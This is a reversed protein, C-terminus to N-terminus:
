MYIRLVKSHTTHTGHIPDIIVQLLQNGEKHQREGYIFVVSRVAPVYRILIVPPWILYSRRYVCLFRGPIHKSIKVLLIQDQKTHNGTITLKCPSKARLFHFFRLFLVMRVFLSFIFVLSLGLWPFSCRGKRRGGFVHMYPCSSFRCFSWCRLSSLPFRM